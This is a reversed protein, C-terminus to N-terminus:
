FSFSLWSIDTIFLLLSLMISCCSEWSSRVDLENSVVGKMSPERKGILESLISGRSLRAGRVVEEISDM